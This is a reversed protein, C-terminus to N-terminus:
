PRAYSWYHLSVFSQGAAASVEVTRRARTFDAPIEISAEQWGGTTLSVAGIARGGVALQVISPRTAGLRATLTGGGEVLLQFVDRNRTGRAGDTRKRDSSYVVFNESQLARGLEYGHEAESELDAVDLTDLLAANAPARTPAQGSRLTSYDAVHAQMTAGGLITSDFVSRETLLEGLLPPISMWSQYVIFHTPLRSPGLREYHEFRSGAGGVWYPAEGRTTLGVIDFTPRDSFYAIAGTDNVGIVSQEPLTKRAWRGLAVQQRSIASASEAVDRVTDPLQTALAVAVLGTLAPGLLRLKPRVRALLVAVSEAGAAIGILWASAFPWLYRLRNWLFSDYTTPAFIGIGILVLLLARFMKGARAGAVLLGPMALWAVLASGEPLFHASWLRGDLLTTLLLAANDVVKQVLIAPPFYPNGILWKVQATTSLATGTFISNILPPLGPGLLPLLAWSRNGHGRWLAAAVMLSALAGEPRMLPVVLALAILETRLTSQKAASAGTAEVFDGARRATRLLLWALPVVEMGSAAFWVHGGFCICLVSAATAGAAGILPESARWTEYALAAFAAWGLLWSVWIAASGDGGFAFFPAILAPWLLSTAGACPEGVGYAFPQANAFSRAYHLHIYADDLPVAPEGGNRELIAATAIGALLASAVLTGLLPWSRRAWGATRAFSM